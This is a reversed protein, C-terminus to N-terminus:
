GYTRVKIMDSVKGGFGTDKRGTTLRQFSEGLVNGFGIKLFNGLISHRGLNKNVNIRSVSWNM